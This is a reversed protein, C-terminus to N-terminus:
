VVQLSVAGPGRSGGPVGPQNTPINTPLFHQLYCRKSNNFSETVHTQKGCINTGELRGSRRATRRVVTIMIAVIIIIIIIVIIIVVIIMIVIIIVIIIIVVSQKQRAGLRGELITGALIGQSLM